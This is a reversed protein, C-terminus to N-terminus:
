VANGQPWQIKRQLVVNIAKVINCIAYSVTSKGIAFQESCSMLSAGQTLKYLACAVKVLLPVAKRFRMNQRQIHPVLMRSLNLLNPKSMCFIEIWRFDDYEFLFFRSFWTTSRPKLRWGVDPDLLNGVHVVLFDCLVLSVVTNMDVLVM